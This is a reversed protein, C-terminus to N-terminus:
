NERNPKPINLQGSLLMSKFEDLKDSIAKLQTEIIKTNANFKEEMIETNEKIKKDILNEVDDKTSFKANSRNWLFKCFGSNLVVSLAALIFDVSYDNAM